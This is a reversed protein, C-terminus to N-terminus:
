AMLESEVSSTLGGSDTAFVTALNSSLLSASVTLSFSGGANVTTTFGDLAGGFTLVVSTPDEDVIMGSFVWIDDDGNQEYGSFAVIVPAEDVDTVSITVTTTDSSFGDSVDITM